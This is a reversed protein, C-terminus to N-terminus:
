ISILFGPVSFQKLGYSYLSYFRLIFAILLSFYLQRGYKLAVLLSGKWYCSCRPPPSPAVGKGPNRWKVRWVYRINSLTLCPINLVMKLTKPIVSGPISGLDGLGNAFVRGVQDILQYYNSNNINKTIWFIENSKNVKWASM